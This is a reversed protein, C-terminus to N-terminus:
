PPIAARCQEQQEDLLIEAVYDAQAEILYGRGAPVMLLLSPTGM